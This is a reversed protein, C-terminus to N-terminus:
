SQEPTPTRLEKFEELLFDIFDRVTGEPNELLYVPIDNDLRDLVKDRDTLAAPHSACGWVLTHNWAFKKRPPFYGDKIAHECKLHNCTECRQPHPIM